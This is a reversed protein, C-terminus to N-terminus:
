DHSGSADLDEYVRRARPEVDVNGDRAYRPSVCAADEHLPDM